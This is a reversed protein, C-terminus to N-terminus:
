EIQKYAEWTLHTLVTRLLQMCSVWFALISGWKETIHQQVIEPKQLLLFCQKLVSSDSDCKGQACIGLLDLLSMHHSYLSYVHTENLPLFEWPICKLFKEEFIEVSKARLSEWGETWEIAWWWSDTWLLIRNLNTFFHKRLSIFKSYPIIEHFFYYQTLKNNEYYSCFSNNKLPLVNGLNETKLAGGKPSTVSHNTIVFGTVLCCFLVSNCWFM